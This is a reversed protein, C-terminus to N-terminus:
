SGCDYAHDCCILPEAAQGPVHNQIPTLASKRLSADGIYGLKIRYVSRHQRARYPFEFARTNFLDDGAYQM